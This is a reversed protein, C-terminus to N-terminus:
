RSRRFEGLWRPGAAVASSRGPGATPQDAPTIAVAEVGDAAFADLDARTLPYPPGSDAPGSDAPGSGAPGSGAPGSGAPGSGAPGAGTPGAGTPGTGAPEAREQRLAVVLLTGGPALLSRVGATAPTRLAPPLAQVTIVEVVLDFAGRWEAPLDLLDATRYDVTTGPWRERCLRIATESLDFASTEFGLGSVFEADAGLGCGVVVARGPGSVGRDRAWDALLPNPVTRAWPLETEGAAGAAYLQEFWGTPDAAAGRVILKEEAEPGASTHRLLAPIVTDWSAPPPPEHGAGDLVLLEAGPIADALARGHALPFLPDASGHLVLTPATIDALAASPEPGPELLEHNGMAAPDTSRDVAQEALARIRHEEFGARMLARQDEVLRAALADRDAGDPAPLQGASEFYATLEPEPVPLEDPVGPLTATTAVLTLTRVLDPRNVALCQAIAGGMSIGVVHAAPVDLAEILGAADEVLDAFTYDPRGAPATRSRGTDRLDYRVVRRRVALRECFGREWWDMSSGRGGILLVVPARPDGFAEVCLEVGNVPLLQDTM